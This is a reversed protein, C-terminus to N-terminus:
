LLNGLIGANGRQLVYGLGAITFDSFHHDHKIHDAPERRLIDYTLYLVEQFTSGHATESLCLGLVSPEV